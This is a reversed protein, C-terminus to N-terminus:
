TGQSDGRRPVVQARDEREMRQYADFNADKLLERLENASFWQGAKFATDRDTVGYPLKDTPKTLWRAIRRFEPMRMLVRVDLRRQVHERELQQKDRQRPM